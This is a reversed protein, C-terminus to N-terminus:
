NINNFSNSCCLEIIQSTKHTFAAFQWLVSSPEGSQETPKIRWSTLASLCKEHKHKSKWHLHLQGVNSIRVEILGM